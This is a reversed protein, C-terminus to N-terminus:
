FDFNGLHEAYEAIYRTQAMKIFHVSYYLIASVKYLWRPTSESAISKAIKIKSILLYTTGVLM